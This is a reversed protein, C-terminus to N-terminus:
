ILGVEFMDLHRARELLDTLDTGVLHLHRAILGTNVIAHRTTPRETGRTLKRLEKITGLLKTMVPDIRLACHDACDTREALNETLNIRSFPDTFQSPNQIPYGIFLICDLM